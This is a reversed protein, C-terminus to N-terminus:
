AKFLIKDSQLLKDHINKVSRKLKAFNAEENYESEQLSQNYHNLENLDSKLSDIEGLIRQYVDVKVFLPGDLAPESIPAMPRTMVPASEQMPEQPMSQQPGPPMPEQPSSVDQPFALPKEFGVADKLAQPEIVKEEQPGTPFTLTKEDASKAQPFPVQNKKKKKGFLWGM